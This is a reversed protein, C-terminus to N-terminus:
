DESRSNQCIILLIKMLSPPLKKQLTVRDIQHCTLCKLKTAHCSMTRARQHSSDNSISHRTKRTGKIKQLFRYKSLSTTLVTCCFTYSPTDLHKRVPRWSRSSCITCSEAVLHLQIAIKHTRRTLKAAM